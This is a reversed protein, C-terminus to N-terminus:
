EPAIETGAVAVILARAVAEPSELLAMPAAVYVIVGLEVGVRLAPEILTLVMLTPEIM